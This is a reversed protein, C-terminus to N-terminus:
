RSREAPLGETRVCLRLFAVQRTLAALEVRSAGALSISVIYTLQVGGDVPKLIWAAATLNARVKYDEAPALEDDDISTQVIMIEANNTEERIVAQVGVITRQYVLQGLTLPQEHHDHWGRAKLGYLFRRECM